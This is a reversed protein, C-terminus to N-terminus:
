KSNGKIIVWNGLVLVDMKTSLFTIKHNTATQFSEGTAKEVSTTLRASHILDDFDRIEGKM